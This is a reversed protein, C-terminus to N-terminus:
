FGGTVELTVGSIYSAWPSALMVISAGGEEPSGARRLPIMMLQAESKSAGPIGLAITQGGVEM